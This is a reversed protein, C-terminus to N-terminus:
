GDFFQFFKALCKQASSFQKSPLFTRSLYVSSFGVVSNASKICSSSFWVCLVFRERSNKSSSKYIEMWDQNSVLDIIYANNSFLLVTCILWM